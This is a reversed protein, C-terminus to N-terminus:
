DLTVRVFRGRESDDVVDAVTGTREHGGHTVTVADGVGAEPLDAAPVFLGEADARLEQHWEVRWPPGTM